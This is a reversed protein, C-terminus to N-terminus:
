HWVTAIAQFKSMQFGFKCFSGECRIWIQTPQQRDLSQPMSLLHRRNPVSGILWPRNPGLRWTGANALTYHHLHLLHRLECVCKRCRFKDLKVCCMDFSTLTFKYEITDSHHWTQVSASTGYKMCLDTTTVDTIVILCTLTSRVNTHCQHDCVCM